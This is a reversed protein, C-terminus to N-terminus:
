ASASTIAAFRRRKAVIVFGLGGILLLAGLRMGSEFTSMGARPLPPTQQPPVPPAPPGTPPAPPIPPTGGGPVTTVPPLGAACGEFDYAIVGEAGLTAGEADTLTVVIKVDASPGNLWQGAAIVWGENVYGGNSGNGNTPFTITGQFTPVVVPNGFAAGGATFSLTITLGSINELYTVDYTLKPPGASVDTCTTSGSVTVAGPLTYAGDQASVHGGALALTALATTAGILFKRM